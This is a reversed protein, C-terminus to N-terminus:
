EVIGGHSVIIMEEEVTQYTKERDNGPSAATELLKGRYDGTETGMGSLSAESM